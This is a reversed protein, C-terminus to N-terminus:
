RSGDAGPYTGFFSDFSRNEQMIVVIHRIRHIGDLPRAARADHDIEPFRCSVGLAAAAVCALPVAWVGLRKM